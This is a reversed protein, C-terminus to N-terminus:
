SRRPQQLVVAARLGAESGAWVLALPGRAYKRSWARVALTTLLAGSAAGIDGWCSVPLHYATGDVFCAGSRV